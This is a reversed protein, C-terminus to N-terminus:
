QEEFDDPTQTDDTGGGGVGSGRLRKWDEATQDVTRDIASGGGFLAGIRGPVGEENLKLEGQTIRQGHMASAARAQALAFNASAAEREAPSGTVLASQLRDRASKLTELAADGKAVYAAQKDGGAPGKGTGMIAGGQGTLLSIAQDHAEDYTMSVNNKRAEAAIEKTAALIEKDSPGGGGGGSYVTKEPVYQEASHTVSRASALQDFAMKDKAISAQLDAQMRQGHAQVLADNSDAMRVKLEQGALEKAAIRASVRAQEDSSFKDRMLGYLSKTDEVKARGQAIAEKQEDIDRDILKNMQDMAVNPGGKFGQMFGGLALAITTAIKGGTSQNKWWRNSDIQNPAAAQAQKIAGIQDDLKATDQARAREAAQAERLMRNRELIDAQAQAAGQLQEAEYQKQAADAQANAAGTVANKTDDSFQVGSQTETSRTTPVWAAPTTTAVVPGGSSVPAAARSSGSGGRYGISDSQKAQVAPSTVANMHANAFPQDLGMTQPVMNFGDPRVAAGVAGTKNALATTWDGSDGGALGPEAQDATVVTGTAGQAKAEDPTLEVQNPAYPVMSPPPAMAQGGSMAAIKRVEDDSLGYPM